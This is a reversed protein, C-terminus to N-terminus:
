TGIHAEWAPAGERELKGAVAAESAEAEGAVRVPPFLLVPTTAHHIVREAVSGLLLREWGRKGRTGMVILDVDNERAFELITSAPQAGVTVVADTDLGRSRLREADADLAGHASERREPWEASEVSVVSYPADLLVPPPLVRLLTLRALDGSALEAARDMVTRSADSGDVPVLLHRFRGPRSTAEGDISSRILLVPVRTRRVLADAVSGLWARRLAGRGHTAMVVLDVDNYSCYRVLTEAVDGNTPPFLPDTGPDEVVAFSVSEGMAESVRESVELMYQRDKEEPFSVVEVLHLRAACQRALRIAPALAQESMRSGDLPVLIARFM